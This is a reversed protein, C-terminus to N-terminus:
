FDPNFLPFSPKAKPTSTYYHGSSSNCLHDNMLGKRASLKLLYLVLTLGFVTQITYRNMKMLLVILYKCTFSSLFLSKLFAFM